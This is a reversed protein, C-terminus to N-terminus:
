GYSIEYNLYSIPTRPAVIHTYYLAGFCWRPLPSPLAHELWLAHNQAPLNSPHWALDCTSM